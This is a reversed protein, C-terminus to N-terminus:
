ENMLRHRCIPCLDGEIHVGLIESFEERLSRPLLHLPEERIPCGDLYYYEEANELARKVSDVLASKGAGVPGMLLLVQRSEEGKFAASKLFRMLKNIVSEMGFFEKEFYNYTRIKDGNFIDRYNESDVDLTDLGRDKITEYLRRHALKISSPNNKVLELYELFTGEFREKKKANRQKKILKLFENNRAM